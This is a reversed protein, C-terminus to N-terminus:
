ALQFGEHVLHLEEIAVEGSRASLDASKFKVPLARDLRWTRVPTRGDLDLHVIEVDLRRTYGGQLTAAQFWSWLDRNLTMGRRLVVTAFTVHGARQHVGYNAGGERITKPEMTAELGTCEAFAGGAVSQPGGGRAGPQLPHDTFRLEFRFAGAPAPDLEPM